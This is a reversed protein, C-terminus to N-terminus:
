EAARRQPQLLAPLDALFDRFSRTLRQAILDFDPRKELRRENMYLGRNVEIQLAHRCLSPQGHSQTIFGGAYPQNRAVSFGAARLSDALAQALGRDCSSGHRDGLVIDAVRDDGSPMSHCDVLLGAGFRRVTRSVLEDLRRHYPRYWREIRAEAEAFSLRARCIEGGDGALRPLTGLGALVRPSDTVVYGPLPGDFMRPDLEWPERNLDVVARSIEAALLPAGLAPAFGFLEDIAFDESRRLDLASLRTTALFSEPFLHGSHPSNFVAPTTWRRPLLLQYGAQDTM